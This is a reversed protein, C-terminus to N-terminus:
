NENVNDDKKDIEKDSVTMNIQPKVFINYSVVLFICFIMGMLGGATLGVFIAVISSLPSIDLTKAMVRPEIIQRLICVVVYGGLLISGMIYHGQIIYYIGMPFIILAMGVIPLVDLLSCILSLVFANPVRVILFIAFVELFTSGLVLIYSLLYKSLMNKSHIVIKFANSNLIKNDKYLGDISNKLMFYTSIIAFGTMTLVYPINSAFGLGVNLSKQGISLAFASISSNMKDLNDNIFDLIKPDLGNYFSLIKDSIEQFVQILYKTDILEVMNKLEFFLLTLMGGIITIALVYFITITIMTALGSKINLKNMLKKTPNYLYSATLAGLLFPLTLRLTKFFLFFIITYIVVFLGIKVFDNKLIKKFDLNNM